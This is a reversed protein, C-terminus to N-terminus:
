KESAPGQEVYIYVSSPDFSTKQEHDLLQVSTIGRSSYSKGQCTWDVGFQLTIQRTVLTMWAPSYFRPAVPQACQIAKAIAPSLDITGLSPDRIVLTDSDERSWLIFEVTGANDIDLSGRHTENALSQQIKQGIGNLSDANLHLDEALIHIWLDAADGVDYPITKQGDSWLSDSNIWVEKGHLEFRKGSIESSTKIVPAPAKAAQKQLLLLKKHEDNNLHCSVNACEELIQVLNARVFVVSYEGEGAGNGVIIPGAFVQSSLTLLFSLLVFCFTKKM